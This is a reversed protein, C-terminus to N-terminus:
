WGKNSEIDPATIGEYLHSVSLRLAKTAPTDSLKEPTFTTTYTYKM